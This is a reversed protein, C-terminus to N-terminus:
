RRCLRLCSTRSPPPGTSSRSRQLLVPSIERAVARRESAAQRKALTAADEYALVRGGAGYWTVNILGPGTGSPVSAPAVAVNERITPYVTRRPFAWKVRTVADPVLEAAYGDGIQPFLDGPTYPSGIAGGAGDPASTAMVLWVDHPHTASPGHAIVLLLVRGAGRSRLEGVVRTLGPLAGHRQPPAALITTAIQPLQTDRPTQRRRLIAFQSLLSQSGAPGAAPPSPVARHGVLVVAAVIVAVTVLVAAIPVVWGVLRRRSVVGPVAPLRAAASREQQDLRRLV